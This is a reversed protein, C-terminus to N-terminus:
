KRFRYNLQNWTRANEDGGEVGVMFRKLNEVTNPNIQAQDSFRYDEPNGGIAEIFKRKFNEKAHPDTVQRYWSQQDEGRSLNVMYRKLNEATYPNLQKILPVNVNHQKKVWDQEAQNLNHPDKFTGPFVDNYSLAFMKYMVGPNEQLSNGLVDENIKGDKGLWKEFRINNAGPNTASENLRRNLYNDGLFYISYLEWDTPLRKFEKKFRNIKVQHGAYFLDDDTPEGKSFGPWKSLYKEKADTRYDDGMQYLGGTADADRNPNEINLLFQVYPSNLFDEKKQLEEALAEKYEGITSFGQPIPRPKKPKKKLPNNTGGEPQEEAYASSIPSFSSLLDGLDDWMNTPSTDTANNKRQGAIAPRPKRTFLPM